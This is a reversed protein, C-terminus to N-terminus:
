QAFRVSMQRVFDAVYQAISVIFQWVSSALAASAEPNIGYLSWMVILVVILAWFRRNAEYARAVPILEEPKRNAELRAETNRMLPDNAGFFYLFLTRLTLLLVIVVGVLFITNFDLTVTGATM